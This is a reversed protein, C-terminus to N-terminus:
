CLDTSAEPTVSRENTTASSRFRGAQFDAEAAALREPSGVDLIYGRPCYGDIHLGRTLLKPFVDRAFDCPRDRPIHRLLAPNLYYIGANALNSFVSGPAPKEVFRTIRADDALQVIGCRSPDDVEYLVITVLAGRAHHQRIVPDLDFDALVDGYVVLFPNDFFWELRKAAGASGLLEPERSYIISVGFRSGDGFYRVISEPRYHLNIAVETFNHRRVFGIAHELLPRGGVTVMPKPRDWTLPQLRTGEGAALILAKM